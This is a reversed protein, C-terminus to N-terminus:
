AFPHLRLVRFIGVVIRLPFTAINWVIAFINWTIVSADFVKEGARTARYAAIEAGSVNQVRNLEKRYAINKPDLAVAQEFAAVAKARNMNAAHTLGLVYFARPNNPDLQTAAVLAPIARWIDYLQHTTGELLLAEAKLQNISFRVETEDNTVELIADADLRRALDLQKAALALTNLQHKREATDDLRPRDADRVEEIYALALELAAIAGPTDRPKDSAPPPPVAEATSAEAAPHDKRESAAERRRLGGALAAWASKLLDLPLYRRFVFVSIAVAVLALLLAGGWPLMAAQQRSQEERVALLRAEADRKEQEVEEVRKRWAAVATQRAMDDARQREAAETREKQAREAALQERHARQAAEHQAALIAARKAFLAQRDNFNINPYSLAADCASVDGGYCMRWQVVFQQHVRTLEHRRQREFELQQQRYIEQQAGQLFLDFIQQGRQAAAPFPFILFTAIVSFLRPMM